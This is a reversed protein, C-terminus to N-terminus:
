AVETEAVVEDLGAIAAALAAALNSDAVAVAADATKKDARVTRKAAADRARKTALKAAEVQEPTLKPARPAKPEKPAEVAKPAKEAVAGPVSLEAFEPYVKLFEAVAQEKTCPTELTIFKVNTHGEKILSDSRTEADRNTFRFKTGITGAKTSVGVTEFLQVNTNTMIHKRETHKHTLDTDVNPYYCMLEIHRGYFALENVKKQAALGLRLADECESLLM